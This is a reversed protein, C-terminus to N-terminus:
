LFKTLIGALVISLTTVTVFGSIVYAPMIKNMVVRKEDENESVAIAIENAILYTAPFGLLQAWAIGFGLNRSGVVKWTPIFYCVIFLAVTSIAVVVLMQLSLGLLSNLKVLALSPIISAFIAMNLLGSSKGKTLINEPVLGFYGVTAGLFLAWISYNIGTHKDLFEALGSFLAAVALCVYDTYYKEWGLRIYLPTELVVETTAASQLEANQDYLGSAKKSRYDQLLDRAEKLGFFSAFPTGVFKHIVFLFSALAAALPLGAKLAAHNMVQTAVIGGSMVPISVLAADKGILPTVLAIALSVVAMSIAAMVATRWEKKLQRLNISTGMHFVIFVASWSAIQGLGAQNIVNAPLLKSLFALLFALLAVFVSSLRAKTRVALIDGIGFFAICILLYLYNM